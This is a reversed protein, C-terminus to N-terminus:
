GFVVQYNDMLKRGKKAKLAIKKKLKKKDSLLLIPKFFFHVLYSKPNREFM